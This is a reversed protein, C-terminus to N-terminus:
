LGVSEAVPIQTAQESTQEPLVRILDTRALDAVVQTPQAGVPHDSAHRVSMAVSEGVGPQMVGHEDGV